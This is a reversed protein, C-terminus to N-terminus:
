GKNVEEWAELAMADFIPQLAPNIYDRGAVYGGNRTAHGYQLIIAINVGNEVHTNTWTLTIKGDGQKIEYGWSSATRGTDVPTAAALAAVGRQGYKELMSIMYQGKTLNNLFKFTKSFDGKNEFYISDM